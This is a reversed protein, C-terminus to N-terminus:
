RLRRLDQPPRREAPGVRIRWDVVLIGSPGAIVPNLDLEAVEPLQQGLVSLRLLLEELAAIDVPPTGRYGTLLPSSRLSRVLDAADAATTVPVLTAVPIGFALLVEGAVVPDLWQQDSNAALAHEVLRHSARIDIADLRPVGGPPRRRWEAYWVARALAQAATEPFPFSPVGRRGGEATDTGAGTPTARMPEPIGDTGVLNAVLPKDWPEAAVEAITRAVNDLHTVLTPTFVVIVADVDPDGLLIPSLGRHFRALAPGDDTRIPRILVTGGDSLVVDAEFQIPYDPPPAQTTDRDSTPV